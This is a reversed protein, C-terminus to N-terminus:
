GVERAYPLSPPVSQRADGSLAWAYKFNGPHQLRTTLQKLWHRVWAAWDEWPEDAGFSRFEEIASRSGVEGSRIKQMRRSNVARGDPWLHTHAQHRTGPIDRQTGSLYRWSARAHGPERCRETETDSRLIRDCRSTTISPRDECRGGETADPFLPGPVM